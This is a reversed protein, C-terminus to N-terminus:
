VFNFVKIHINAIAPSLSCENILERHIQSPKLRHTIEELDSYTVPFTIEIDLLFISIFWFRRTTQLHGPTKLGTITNLAAKQRTWELVSSPMFFWWWVPCFQAQVKHRSGQVDTRVQKCTEEWKRKHVSSM